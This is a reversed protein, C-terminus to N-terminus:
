VRNRVQFILYNNLALQQNSSSRRIELSDPMSVANKHAPVTFFIFASGTEIVRGSTSDFDFVEHENEIINAIEVQVSNIYIRRVSIHM